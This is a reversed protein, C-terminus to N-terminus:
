RYFAAVSKAALPFAREDGVSTTLQLQHRQFDFQIEFAGRDYPIPSTTLGRANVYLAVNAWHNQRPTLELRVKGVIQTWMHTTHYTDEWQQLPLEPWDNQEPM